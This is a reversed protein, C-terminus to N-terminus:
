STCVPVMTWSVDPGSKETITTPNHMPKRGWLKWGARDEHPIGPGHQQPQQHRRRGHRDDALGVVVEVASRVEQERRQHDREEDQADGHEVGGEGDDAPGASTGVQGLCVLVVEM